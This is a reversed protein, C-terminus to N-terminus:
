FERSLAFEFRTRKFAYLGVTSDNVSRTVRLLPALGKYSLQRLVIGGTVDWRTDRRTKPFLGLRADSGLRSVSGQVFLLQKGFSRAALLEIAGSTSALAPMAATQRDFRAGIRTSFRPTIARDYAINLDYLTGNQAPVLPYRSKLATAEVEIQSRPDLPKLMNLSVGYSDAYLRGGFWRKSAIAAPRWRTRGARIEPGTAVTAIIDNFRSAGYLNASGSLRTLWSATDSLDVRAFAQGAIAVGLGSRARADDDLYLPAIVTDVTERATARNINSDPALAIEFSGGFPRSSRLAAAFRDVARAVDEPLGAAGARRLERRAGSEDGGAALLRALELRVPQANPKEDLLAKLLAIAGDRDGRSERLRALRFRAEARIDAQSDGTLGRLLTEADDLRGAGIYRDAAAFVEAASLNTACARDPPCDAPPAQATAAGGCLAIAAAILLRFM